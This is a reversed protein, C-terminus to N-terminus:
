YYSIRINGYYYRGPSPYVDDYGQYNKNFVNDVGVNLTVYKWPAPKISFKLNYVSFGGNKNTKDNAFSNSRFDASPVINLWAFPKIEAYLTGFHKPLNSFRMSPNEKNKIHLYAYTGGVTLYQNIDYDVGLDFGKRETTGKVNITQSIAFGPYTDYDLDSRDIANKSRTYYISAELHMGDLPGGIYGLEYHLAKEPKLGPNQLSLRPLVSGRVCGKQRAPCKTTKGNAYNSYAEKFSPFRTKKAISARFIHTDDGSPKFFLAFQPDFTNITPALMSDAEPYKAILNQVDMGMNASAKRKTYIAGLQTEWYNNITFNDELAISYFKQAADDYTGPVTQSSNEYTYFSAHTERKYSLMLKILHKNIIETGLEVSSGFAKDDYHSGRMDGRWGVMENQFKDYYIRPKIYFKDNYFRTNSVFSYTERNWQPWEWTTPVLGGHSTSGSHKEALQRSISVVYEDTANPVFGLKISGRRDRTYYNYKKTDVYQNNADQGVYNESLETYQREFLSGGVQFYWNKQMSGLNFSAEAVSGSGTGMTANFDLTSRPRMTVINIAGGMTNYGYMVSSYGKAVQLSSIDATSFRGMDSYGDYPIYVPIGDVFIPVYRLGFGRVTVSSEYRGGVPRGYIVGPVKSLASGVDKKEFLDIKDKSIFSESKEAATQESGYVMVTGLSFVNAADSSAINETQTENLDEVDAEQAYVCPIFWGLSFAIYLIRQLNNLVIGKM